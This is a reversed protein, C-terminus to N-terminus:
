DTTSVPPGQSSANGTLGKKPVLFKDLPHYNPGKSKKPKGGTVAFERGDQSAAIPSILLQRKAGGSAQPRSLESTSGTPKPTEFDKGLQELQRVASRPSYKGYETPSKEIPVERDRGELHVELKPM